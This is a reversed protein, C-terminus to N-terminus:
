QPLTPPCLVKAAAQWNKQPVQGAAWYLTLQLPTLVPTQTLQGSLLSFKPPAMDIELQTGL